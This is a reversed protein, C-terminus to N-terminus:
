TSSSKLAIMFSDDDFRSKKQQKCFRSSKILGNCERKKNLTLNFQMDSFLCHNLSSKIIASNKKYESAKKFTFTNSLKIMLM